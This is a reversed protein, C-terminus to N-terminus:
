RGRLPERLSVACPAYPAPPALGARSGHAPFSAVGRWRSHRSEVRSSTLVGGGWACACCSLCVPTLSVLQIDERTRMLRGVAPPPPPPLRSLRLVDEACAACRVTEGSDAASASRKPCAICRPMSGRSSTRHGRCPALTQAEPPHSPWRPTCALVRQPTRQPVARGHKPIGGAAAVCAGSWERTEPEGRARATPTSPRVDGLFPICMRPSTGVRHRLRGRREGARECLRVSPAPQPLPADGWGRQTHRREVAGRQSWV